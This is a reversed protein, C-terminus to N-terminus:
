NVYLDGDARLEANYSVNSDRVHSRLEAKSIRMYTGDDTTIAVWVYVTGARAIADMLVKRTM